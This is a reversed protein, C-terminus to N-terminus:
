VRSGIFIIWSSCTRGLQIRTNTVDLSTLSKLKSIDVIAQRSVDTERLSFRELGSLHSISQVQRDGWEAEEVWKPNFFMSVLDDDRFGEFLPLRHMCSVARSLPGSRNTPVRVIGTCEIPKAPYGDPPCFHGLCLKNFNFVKVPGSPTSVLGKFFRVTTADAAVQEPPGPTQSKEAKQLPEAKSAHEAAKEIYPKAPRPWLRDRLTFGTAILTLALFSLALIIRGASRKGQPTIHGADDSKGLVQRPLEKKASSAAARSASKKGAPSKYSAFVDLIEQCSQVRKEKEKALMQAVLSELWPPFITEPSNAALTPPLNSQHSCITAFANTGMFPPRGTLTEYLACAFSYIDSRPDADEGMSQEPSMYLPSGFVTGVTTLRQADLGEDGALKAIGFDVLKVSVVKNDKLGLFINAPKLDRHVIGKAHASVLGAAVETFIMLAEPLPLAGRAEIREALSEGALLEMTYYPQNGQAIGFDFVRVINKNELKAIAQAERQFREWKERDLDPSRFTKLAVDNGLALHSARYVAGMGGEGLLSVIRYKADIVTGPAVPVIDSQDPLGEKGEQLIGNLVKFTRSLSLSKRLDAMDLTLQSRHIAPFCTGCAQWFKRGAPSTGSISERRM